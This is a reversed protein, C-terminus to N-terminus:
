IDRKLIKRQLRINTRGGNHKHLIRKRTWIAGPENCVSKSSDSGSRTHQNVGADNIGNKCLLIRRTRSFVAQRQKSDKYVVRRRNEREHRSIANLRLEENKEIEEKVSDLNFLGILNGLTSILGAIEGILKAIVPVPPM